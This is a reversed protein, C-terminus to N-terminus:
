LCLTPFLQIFVFSRTLLHVSRTSHGVFSVGFGLNLLPCHLLLCYFTSAFCMAGLATLLLLVDTDFSQILVITKGRYILIVCAVLINRSFCVIRVSGRAWILAAPRKTM